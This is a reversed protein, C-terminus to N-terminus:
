AVAAQREAARHSLFSQITRLRGDDIQVLLAYETKYKKGSKARYHVSALALVAHENLARVERVNLLSTDKGKLADNIYDRLEDWGRYSYRGLNNMGPIWEVEPHTLAELGRDAADAGPENLLALFRYVLQVNVAQQTTLAM